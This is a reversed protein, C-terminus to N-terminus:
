KDKRLIFNPCSPRSLKLVKVNKIFFFINRAVDATRIKDPINKNNTVSQVCPTSTAEAAEGDGVIGVTLYGAEGDGTIIIFLVVAVNM